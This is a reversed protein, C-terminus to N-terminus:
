ARVVKVGYKPFIADASVEVIQALLGQETLV